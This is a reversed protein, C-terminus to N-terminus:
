LEDTVGIFGGFNQINARLRCATLTKACVDLRTDQTQANNATFYGNASKEPFTSPIIGSGSAPYKCEVGKYTWPCIGKYFKRKPLVDLLNTTRNSLNFNITNDDYGNMKTVIFKNEVYANEDSNQNVIFLSDGITADSYESEQLKVTNNQNVSVITRETGASEAKIIDGVRYMATSDLTIINGSISTIRSYEPWFELMSAFINKIEVVAGLLDRSDKIVDVWEEGLSITTAYDFSVNQGGRVGVVDQDYLINGPVTRPDINTVLDGNVYAAVASTNNYGVLKPNEVLSTLAFDISSLELNLEGVSGDSSISIGPYNIPFARYKNNQFTISYDPISFDEGFIQAYRIPFPYPWASGLSAENPNGNATPPYWNGPYYISYLRVIPEQEFSNNIAIYNSPAIDVITSSAVTTQEQPTASAIFSNVNSFGRSVAIELSDISTGPFVVETVIAADNAAPFTIVESLNFDIGINGLISSPFEYLEQPVLINNAFVQIEAKYDASIPLSFTNTSGNISYTNAFIVVPTSTYRQSVYFSSIASSNSLVPEGSQFYHSVNSVKVKATNSTVAIVEGLANSSTGYISMGPAFSSADALTLIFDYLRSSM